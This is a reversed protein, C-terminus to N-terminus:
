VVLPMAYSYELDSGHNRAGLSIGLASEDTVIMAASLERTIAASMQM